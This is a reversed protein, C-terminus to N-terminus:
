FRTQDLFSPDIGEDAFEQLICNRSPRVSHAHRGSGIQPPSEKTQNAQEQAGNLYEGILEYQSNGLASSLKAVAGKRTELSSVDVSSNNKFLKRLAAKTEKTDIQEALEALVKAATTKAKAITDRSLGKRTARNSLKGLASTLAELEWEGIPYRQVHTERFNCNHYNSSQPM